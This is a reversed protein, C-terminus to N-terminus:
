KQNRLLLGNGVIWLAFVGALTVVIVLSSLEVVPIEPITPMQLQALVNLWTMWGSQLQMFVEAFSPMQMGTVYPTIFQMVFPAGIIITIVAIVVQLTATLTLWRPLSPTHPM